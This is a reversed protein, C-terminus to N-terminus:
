RRMRLLVLYVVFALVVLIAILSLMTGQIGSASAAPAIATVAAIANASPLPMISPAPTLTVEKTPTVAVMTGADAIATADECSVEFAAWCAGSIADATGTADNYEPEAAWTAAEATATADNYLVPELIDYVNPELMQAEEPNLEKMIKLEDWVPQLDEPSPNQELASAYLMALEYHPGIAGPDLRAAEKAAQVGLQQYTEGFYQLIHGRENIGQSFREYLNALSLWGQAFDPFKEVIGRWYKLEEWREPRLLLISFDDEPGPEFNEWTWRVQQGKVQGGEPMLGITEESAPYPLNVQLEAKDILGAWGAGTQFIYSLTMDLLSIGTQPLFVYGVQINVEEVPPFTVPFSAWPLPPEDEGQPNPLDTVSHDLPKGNVVVQFDEIRPASEGIHEEWRVDELASALPFWVTMSIAEGTPNRLTFDAAVDVVAKYIIPYFPEQLWIPLLPDGPILLIAANDEDTGQRVTMVVKEAVMQISTEGDPQISSGGPLIPIPAVDARAPLPSVLIFLICVLLLGGARLVLSRIQVTHM